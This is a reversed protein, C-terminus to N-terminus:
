RSWFASLLGDLSDVSANEGQQLWTGFFDVFNAKLFADDAVIDPDNGPVRTFQRHYFTM